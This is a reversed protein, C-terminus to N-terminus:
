NGPRYAALPSRASVLWSAAWPGGYWFRWGLSRTVIDAMGLQRLHEAYNPTLGGFDVVVLKGGPKLVRVAETIARDRGSSSPINHIALSSLVVDFSKEPFPLQQMDATHLEVREAVGELGANQLTVPEANGSQDVSKWLDVGAARGEHILGAVMLLVAGRGCGMDLIGEDGRLGIQLLLEAWVRFKGRRTTYVYSAASLLFIFGCVLALLGLLRIDLVFFGLIGLVLLLIAAICLSFPVVPADFGYKGRRRALQRIRRKLSHEM